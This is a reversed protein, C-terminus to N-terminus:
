SQRLSTESEGLAESAARVHQEVRALDAPEKIERRATKAITRLEDNLADRQSETRVHPALRQIAALLHLLVLPKDGGNQRIQRFAAGILSGYTPRKWIVRIEGTEDTLVGRPLARSMLRALSASLRDIVAVATYPDNIGPSLARVAVEVLHRISFELDQVPTRKPGITFARAIADRLEPGIQDAPHVAIDRGGEVVYDGARFRLAVLVGASRAADILEDFEITQVYGGRRLGCFAANEQFDAPLAAEPDKGAGGELPELNTIGDDLEKGVLEIVTESVLSRALGHVHLILLAVSLLTLGISISVSVYPHPGDGQRWGISGYLLLCFTITMVYTGFVFQTRRSAMFNRALRPGFQSAALTLVVMTISFVLSTMTIMSALLTGVIDRADNPVGVYVLWHADEGVAGDLTPILAAMWTAALGMLAPVFWFSTTVADWQVRLFHIHRKM